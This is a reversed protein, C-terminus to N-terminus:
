PHFVVCHIESGMTLCEKRILFRIALSLIAEGVYSPPPVAARLRHCRKLRRPCHSLLTKTELEHFQDDHDNQLRLHPHHAMMMFRKNTLKTDKNTHRKNKVVDDFHLATVDEVLHCAGYSHAM